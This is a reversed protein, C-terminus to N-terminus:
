RVFLLEGKGRPLKCQTLKVQSSNSYVAADEKERRQSEWIRM